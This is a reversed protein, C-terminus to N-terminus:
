WIAECTSFVMAATGVSDDLAAAQDCYRDPAAPDLAMMRLPAMRFPPAKRMPALPWGPEFGM